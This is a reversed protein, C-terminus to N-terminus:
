RKVVAKNLRHDGFLNGVLAVWFVLACLQIETTGMSWFKIGLLLFTVNAPLHVWKLARIQKVTIEALHDQRSIRDAAIYSVIVAILVLILCVLTRELFSLVDSAMLLLVAYPELLFLIYLLWHRIKM